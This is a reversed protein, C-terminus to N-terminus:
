EGRANTVKFDAVTWLEGDRRADLQMEMIVDVWLEMAEPPITIWLENGNYPTFIPDGWDWLASQAEFYPRSAAPWPDQEAVLRFELASVDVESPFVVKARMPEGPRIHIRSNEALNYRYPATYVAM